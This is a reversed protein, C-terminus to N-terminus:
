GWQSGWFTQGTLIHKLGDETLTKLCRRQFWQTLQVWIEYPSEKPHSFSNQAFTNPWMVLINPWMVLIAAMGMYSLFGKFINKEPVLLSIAKPSWTHLVLSTPGVLNACIIIRPLGQGVKIALDFKIGLANIYIHSYDQFWWKEMFGFDNCKSSLNLMLLCQVYILILPWPSKQDKM